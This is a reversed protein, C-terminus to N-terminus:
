ACSSFRIVSVSSSFRSSSMNRSSVTSKRSSTGAFTTRRTSAFASLSVLHRIFLNKFYGSFLAPEIIVMSITSSCSKECDTLCDLVYARGGDVFLRDVGAEADVVLAMKDARDGQM